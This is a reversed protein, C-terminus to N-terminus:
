MLQEGVFGPHNLTFRAGIQAQRTYGTDIMLAIPQRFATSLANGQYREGFNATNFLNFIEVFTELRSGHAFSFRRTARLDFLRFPDGRQSNVGV